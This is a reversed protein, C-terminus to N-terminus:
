QVIEASKPGTVRAYFVGQSASNRLQVRQNLYANELAQATLEIHVPAQSIIVRVEDQAKIEPVPALDSNLIIAGAELHHTLWQNAPMKTLPYSRLGSVNKIKWDIDKESLSHEADVRKNLVAVRQWASVGFWFLHHEQENDVRVAIRKPVPKQWHPKAQFSNLPYDSDSSRSKSELAVRLFGEQKLENELADKALRELALGTTQTAPAVKIVQKGLWLFEEHRAKQHIWEMLDKSRLLQGARLKKDLKLGALDQNEPELVVLDGLRLATSRIEQQFHLRTQACAINSLGIILCSLLIIFPKPAYNM